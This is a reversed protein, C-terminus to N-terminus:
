IKDQSIQPHGKSMGKAFLQVYTNLKNGNNKKYRSGHIDAKAQQV